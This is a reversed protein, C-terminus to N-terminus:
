KDKEKYGIYTLIGAPVPLLLAAYLLVVIQDWYGWLLCWISVTMLFLGLLMKKM